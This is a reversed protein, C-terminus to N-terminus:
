QAPNGLGSEPNSHKGGDIGHERIRPLLQKTNGESHPTQQERQDESPPPTVEKDNRQKSGREIWKKLDGPVSLAASFAWNKFSEPLVRCIGMPVRIGLVYGVLTIDKGASFLQWYGRIEDLDNDKHNIMRFQVTRKKPDPRMEMHFSVSILKHGLRIRFISRRKWSSIETMEVLHNYVETYSDWDLLAAWVDESPANIVAWGSGGFFGDQGSSSFQRSVTKGKQLAELEREKFEFAFGTTSILFILMPLLMRAYKTCVSKTPYTSGHLRGLGVEKALKGPALQISKCLFVIEFALTKVTVTM